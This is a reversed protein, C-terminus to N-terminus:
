PNNFANQTKIRRSGNQNIRAHIVSTDRNRLIYINSDKITTTDIMMMKEKKMCITSHIKHKQKTSGNKITEPQVEFIDKM